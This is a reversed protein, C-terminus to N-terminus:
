LRPMKKGKQERECFHCLHRRCRVVSLRETKLVYLQTRAIVTVVAPVPIQEIPM